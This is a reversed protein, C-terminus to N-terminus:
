KGLEQNGDSNLNHHGSLEAKAETLMLKLDHPAELEQYQAQEAATETHPPPREHNQIQAQIQQIVRNLATGMDEYIPYGSRHYALEFQVSWQTGRFNLPNGYQDNLSLTLKDMMSSSPVIFKSPYPFQYYQTDGLDCGLPIYAFMSTRLETSYNSTPIEYCQILVSTVGSLDPVNSATCTTNFPIDIEDDIVFGLQTSFATEFVVFHPLVANTPAARLALTMSNAIYDYSFSILSSLSSGDLFTSYDDIQTQLATLLTYIDYRGSPVYLTMIVDTFASTYHFQLVGGTVNYFVNPICASLLRITVLTVDSTGSVFGVLSFAVISNLSGNLSEGYASHLSYIRTDEVEDITTKPGENTTSEAM